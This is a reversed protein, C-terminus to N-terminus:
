WGVAIWTIESAATRVTFSAADFANVGIAATQNNGSVVVGLCANPFAHPFTVPTSLNPTIARNGAQIFLGGGATSPNAGAGTPGPLAQFGPNALSVNGGAFWSKGVASVQDSTYDGAQPLVGGSRGNFSTVAAGIWTIVGGVFALVQGAVTPPPVVGTTGPATQVLLENAIGGAISGATTTAPNCMVYAGMDESWIIECPFGAGPIDAANLASGGFKVVPHSPLVTTGLTLTLTVPGTNAGSSEVVFQFIRPLASLGSPLTATLNNATGAAACATFVGAQLQDPQVMGDLDGKTVLQQVIDGANWTVAATGQQGRVVTCVDSVRSTCLVIENTLQTAADQITLFFAQGATPSPFRAGTGTALIITTTGAGVGSALSSSANNAFLLQM